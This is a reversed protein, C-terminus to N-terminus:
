NNYELIYLIHKHIGIDNNEIREITNIIKLKWLFIQVYNELSLRRPIYFNFNQFLGIYVSITKIYFSTGTFINQLM